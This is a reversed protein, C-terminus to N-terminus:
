RAAERQWRRLRTCRRRHQTHLAWRATASPTHADGTEAAAAAASRAFRPAFGSSRRSPQFTRRVRPTAATCRPPPACRSAACRRLHSPAFSPPMCRTGSAFGSSRPRRLRAGTRASAWKRSSPPWSRTQPCLAPCRPRPRWGRGRIRALARGAHRRKPPRTAWRSARARARARRRCRQSARNTVRSGGRAARCRGCGRRAGAGRVFAMLIRASPPCAPASPPCAAAHPDGACRTAERDPAAPQPTLLPRGVALAPDKAASQRVQTFRQMLRAAVREARRPHILTPDRATKARGGGVRAGLAAAPLPEERTPM